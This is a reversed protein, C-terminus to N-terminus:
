TKDEPPLAPANMSARAFQERLNAQLHDLLSQGGPGIPRKLAAALIAEGKAREGDLALEAAQSWAAGFGNPDLRRALASERHAETRRDLCLLVIALGGHAEGFTRDAAIARRFAQEAGTPDGGAFKAWGLTVLTGAHDPMVALVREIAAIAQPFERRQLHALGVGFWARTGRPERALVREFQRLAGDTDQREVRGMGAVLGANIDDPDQALVSEARDYANQLDGKDMELLALYGNAASGAAAGGWVTCADIAEDLRGLQHLTFVRYRSLEADNLGRAAADDFTALADSWRQQYYLALGLNFYLAAEDPNAARLDELMAQAEAFRHQSILVNATGSRAGVHAPNRALCRQYLGLAEQFAGSQHHLDGLAVLLMENNPDRELYSQYRAIAERPRAAAAATM